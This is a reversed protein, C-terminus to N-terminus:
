GSDEFRTNFWLWQEPAERIWAEFQSFIAATAARIDEGRDSTRPVELEKLDIHFRTENGIRMSRAMWIRAGVHRAIMAPVPTFKAKGGLFPIAIGRRDVQDVVFALHGGQRVFDTMLRATRQGGPGKNHVNGKTFLGGPYLHERHRRLTRDVYPNELQRYVGAPKGGSAACGWAALEWNGMHLTVGIQPRPEEMLSTLHDLNAIKMREPQKLIRDLLMTEAVVRGLNVWMARAIREHDADTMGPFAQKLNALAHAHRRRSRGIVSWVRACLSVAWDLPLLRLLGLSVFFLAYHVRHKLGTVSLVAQV